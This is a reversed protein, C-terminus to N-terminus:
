RSVRISAGSKTPEAHILVTVPFDGQESRGGDFWNCYATLTGWKDQVSSVTMIPGGSKVRVTDGAKIESM